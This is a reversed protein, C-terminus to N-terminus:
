ATTARGSAACPIAIGTTGSRGARGSFKRTSLRWTLSGLTRCDAQRALARSRAAGGCPVCQRPHLRGGSARAGTRSRFSLRRRADRQGLLAALRHGDAPYASARSQAYQRLGHLRRLLPRRRSSLLEQQRDRAVLAYSRSSQGRRHSQVGRRYDSRHRSRSPTQGDDQVRGAVLGLASASRARFFAISNYGWYNRLGISSWIAITSQPM